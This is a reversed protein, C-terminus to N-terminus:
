KKINLFYLVKGLFINKMCLWLKLQINNFLKFIHQMPWKLCFPCQTLWTQENNCQIIIWQVLIKLWFSADYCSRTSYVQFMCKSTMGQSNGWVVSIGPGHFWWGPSRGLIASGVSNTQFHVVFYSCFRVVNETLFTWNLVFRKIDSFTCTGTNKFSRIPEAWISQPFSTCHLRM